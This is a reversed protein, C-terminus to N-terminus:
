REGGVEFDKLKTAIVGEVDYRFNTEESQAELIRVGTGFVSHYRLFDLVADAAKESIRQVESEELLTIAPPSAPEVM